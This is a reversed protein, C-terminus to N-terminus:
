YGHSAECLAVGQVGKEYATASVQYDLQLYGAHVSDLVRLNEYGVPFRSRPDSALGHYPLHSWRSQLRLGHYRSRLRSTERVLYQRLERLRQFYCECWNPQLYRTRPHIPLIGYLSIDDHSRLRAISNWRPSAMTPRLQRVPIWIRPGLFATILM